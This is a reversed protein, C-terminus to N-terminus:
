PLKTVVTVYKLARRCTLLNSYHELLSISACTYQKSSKSSHIKFLEHVNM